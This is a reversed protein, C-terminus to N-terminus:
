YAWVGCRNITSTDIQAYKGCSNGKNKIRALNRVIVLYRSDTNMKQLLTTEAQEDGKKMLNVLNLVETKVEDWHKLIPKKKNRKAM